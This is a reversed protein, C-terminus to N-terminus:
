SWSKSVCTESVLLNMPNELLKSPLPELARPISVHVPKDYYVGTKFAPSEKMGFGFEMPMLESDEDFNHNHHDRTTRPSVGTIANMDDNKGIDLDKFGRDIGYITVDDLEEHRQQSWDRISQNESDYARDGSYSIGPPGSLLSNVSLRRVDPSAQVLHKPPYSKHGDKLADESHSSAPTAPTGASSSDFLMASSAQSDVSYVPYSTTNPPPMTADYSSPNNADENAPYRVRKFPRDREASDQQQIDGNNNANDFFSQTAPPSEASTLVNKNSLISNTRNRVRAEPASNSDGLTRGRRQKPAVPYLLSTPTSPTSSHYREYSQTYQPESRGQIAGYIDDDYMTVPSGPSAMLAPDIMSIECPQPRSSLVHSPDQPQQPYQDAFLLDHASQPQVESGGDDQKMDITMGQFSIQSPSSVNESDRTNSSGASRIAPSFNLQGPANSEAM